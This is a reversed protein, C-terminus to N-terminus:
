HNLPYFSPSLTPFAGNIGYAVLEVETIPEGNWRSTNRHQTGNVTLVWLKGASNRDKGVLQGRITEGDELVELEMIGNAFIVDSPGAEANPVLHFSRYVWAGAFSFNSSAVITDFDEHNETDSSPSPPPPLEDKGKLVPIGVGLVVVALFIGVVILTSALWDFGRRQDNDDFTDSPFSSGGLNDLEVDRNRGRGSM